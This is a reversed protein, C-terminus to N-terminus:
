NREKDEKVKQPCFYRVPCYRVCRKSEGEQIFKTLGFEYSHKNQLIFEDAMKENDFKRVARKLKPTKVAWETATSWRDVGTCDPVEGQEAKQHLEIRGNIYEIMFEQSKVIMPLTMFQESPYDGKSTESKTQSWDRFLAVVEISNVEYGQERMMAAYVNTQQEWKKRSEPYMYSYVSCFKYDQLKKELKDYLDFTGALLMGNHEHHLTMEWIFRSEVEPFWKNMLKKLSEGVIKLDAKDEGEKLWEERVIDLVTMFARRKFDKIHSRELVHHICTGLLMWLGESVDTVIEHSHKKKLIRIKPSDILQTVSIQGKVKYTDYMIADVLPQPLGKKNTITAM